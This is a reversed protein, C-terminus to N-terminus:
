RTYYGTMFCPPDTAPRCPWDDPGPAKWGGQRRSSWQVITGLGDAHVCKLLIMSFLLFIGEPYSCQRAVVNVSLLGIYVALRSAEGWLEAEQLAEDTKEM